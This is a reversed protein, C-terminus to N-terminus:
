KLKCRLSNMKSAIAPNSPSCRDSNPPGQADSEIPSIIFNNCFGFVKLPRRPLVSFLSTDDKKAEKLENKKVEVSYMSDGGEVEINNSRLGKQRVGTQSTASLVLDQYKVDLSTANSTSDFSIPHGATAM